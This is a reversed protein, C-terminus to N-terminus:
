YINFCNNDNTRYECIKKVLLTLLVLGFLTVNQPLDEEVDDGGFVDKYMSINLPYFWKSDMKLLVFFEAKWMLFTAIVMFITKVAITMKVSSIISKSFITKDLKEKEEKLKNLLRENKYYKAFDATPSLASMQAKIQLIQEDLRDMSIEESMKRSFLRVFPEVIKTYNFSVLGFSLALLLACVFDSLIQFLYNMNINNEM